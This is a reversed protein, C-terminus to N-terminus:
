DKQNVLFTTVMFYSVVILLMLFLFAFVIRLAILKRLSIRRYFHEETLIQAYGSISGFFLGFIISVFLTEWFTFEVSSMEITGVGRVISLFLFALTWGVIYQRIIKWRRKNKFKM